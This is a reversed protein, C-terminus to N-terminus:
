CKLMEAKVEISRRCSSNTASKRISRASAPSRSQRHAGEATVESVKLQGLIGTKRRIAVITGTQVQEPM